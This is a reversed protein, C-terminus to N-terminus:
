KEKGRACKNCAHPRYVAHTLRRHLTMEENNQVFSKEFSLMSRILGVAKPIFPAYQIKNEANTEAQLRIGPGFTEAGVWFNWLWVAFFSIYRESISLKCGSM